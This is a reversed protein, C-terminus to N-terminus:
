SSLNRARGLILDDAKSVSVLGLDSAGSRYRAGSSGPDMGAM